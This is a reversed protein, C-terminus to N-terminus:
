VTAHDCARGKTLADVSASPLNVASHLLWEERLRSPDPHTAIIARMVAGAAAMQGQLEAVADVLLDNGMAAEGDDTRANQWRGRTSARGM